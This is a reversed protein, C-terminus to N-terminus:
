PQPKRPTHTIDVTITVVVFAFVVPSPLQQQPVGVHGAQATNPPGDFVSMAVNSLVHVQVVAFDTVILKLAILPKLRHCALILQSM